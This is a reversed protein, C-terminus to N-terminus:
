HFLLFFFFFIIFSKKKKKKKGQAPQLVFKYSTPTPWDNYRVVDIIKDNDLFEDAKLVGKDDKEGTRVTIKMSKELEEQM